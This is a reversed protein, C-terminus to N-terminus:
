IFRVTIFEKLARELDHESREEKNIEERVKDALSRLKNKTEELEVDRQMLEDESPLSGWPDSFMTFLM